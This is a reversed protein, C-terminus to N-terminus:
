ARGDVALSSKVISWQAAVRLRETVSQSASSTMKVESTVSIGSAPESGEAVDFIGYIYLKSRNGNFM